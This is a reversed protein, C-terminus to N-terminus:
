RFLHVHDRAWRAFPTAPRGTVEEVTPVAPQPHEVLAAVGDLYWRAVEEGMGPTKDAVAEEHTLEVFPVERGLAEGIWAVRQARTISEPGTLPYRRGRHRDDLLAAAAVAAIDALAIPANAAQPHADRVVGLTRIQEAWDGANEMFEGPELHTWDVGADEVAGEIDHWFGGEEGALDVVHEVGAERALAAVERATPPHPALYLKGVGALAPRVTEVRGVFGRVVEVEAPLAAREPRATLARVRAGAALLRDVVLRGVNGTAGTVLITEKGHTMRFLM